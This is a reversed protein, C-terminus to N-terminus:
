KVLPNEFPKRLTVLLASAMPPFPGARQVASVTEEDFEAFGSSKVLEVPSGLRGDARVLFRVITEGQELLLALRRPFRCMQTVRRRIEAFERMYRREDTSYLAQPGPAAPVPAARPAASAGIAQASLGTATGRGQGATARPDIGRSAAPSLDTIAPQLENSAARANRVDQARGATTLAVDYRRPGTDADLPGEARAPAGPADLPPPAPSPVPHPPLVGDVVVTVPAGPTVSGNVAVHPVADGTEASREPQTHRHSDADGVRPERREASPSAARTATRRHSLQYAHATDALRARLIARDRRFGDPSQRASGTGTDAAPAGAEDGMGFRPAMPTAVRRRADGELPPLTEDLPLVPAPLDTLDITEDEASSAVLESVEDLRESEHIRSAPDVPTTATRGVGVLVLLLAGGHAGASAGLARLLRFRDQTRVM